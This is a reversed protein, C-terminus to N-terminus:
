KFAMLENVDTWIHPQGTEQNLVLQGQTSRLNVMTADKCKPCKVHGMKTVVFLAQGSYGCSTCIKHHQAM